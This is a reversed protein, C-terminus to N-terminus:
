PAVLEARYINSGTETNDLKLLHRKIMTLLLHDFDRPYNEIDDDQFSSIFDQTRKASSLKLWAHTKSPQM